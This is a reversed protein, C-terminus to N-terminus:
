EYLLEIIDSNFICTIHCFLSLQYMKVNKNRFKFYKEMIIPVVPTIYNNPNGICKEEKNKRTNYYTNCLYHVKKTFSNYGTATNESM